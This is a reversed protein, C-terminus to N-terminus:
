TSPQFLSEILYHRHKKFVVRVKQSESGTKSQQIKLYKGIFVKRRRKEAQRALRM